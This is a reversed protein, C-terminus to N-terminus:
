KLSGAQARDGLQPNLFRKLGGGSVALLLQCLSRPSCRQGETGSGRGPWDEMVM